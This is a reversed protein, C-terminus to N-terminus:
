DPTCGLFEAHGRFIEILVDRFPHKSKPEPQRVPSTKKEVPREVEPAICTAAM